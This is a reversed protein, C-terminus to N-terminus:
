GKMGYLAFTTGSAFAGSQPAFTLNTIASTNVWLGSYLWVQGYGGTNDNYGTMMRLTKNKTTSAYDHLDIIGVGFSSALMSTRPFNYMPLYTTTDNNATVTSGNGSLHHDRYTSTTSNMNLKFDNPTTGAATLRAMMRVQLHKYTSPISTFAISTESGTATQRQILFTASPDFADNGVLM